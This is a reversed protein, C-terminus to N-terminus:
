KDNKVEERIKLWANRSGPFNNVENIFEKKALEDEGMSEYILGKMFHANQYYKNLSLLRDFEELAGQYEKSHYKVLALNFLLNHNDPFFSLGEEAFGQAEGLDSKVFSVMILKEYVEARKEDELSEKWLAIAKDVEGSAFFADGERIKQEKGSELM